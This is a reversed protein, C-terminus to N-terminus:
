YTWQTPSDRVTKRCRACLPAADNERIQPRAGILRGRDVRRALAPAACMRRNRDAMGHSAEATLTTDAGGKGASSIGPEHRTEQGKSSHARRRHQRGRVKSPTLKSSADAGRRKTPHAVAISVKPRMHVPFRKGVPRPLRLRPAMISGPMPQM